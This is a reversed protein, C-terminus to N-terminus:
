KKITFKSLISTSVESIKDHSVLVSLTDAPLIITAGSPAIVKNKRNLMTIITNEPLSLDSVKSQGQYIDNDIFLEILEYNTEHFTVLEMKQKVKERQKESFKLIDALKGITTGQFLVSLTVTFFVINFIQHQSDIGAAVPYTALVIPVAGRIGSWSLFVKEKVSLKTFLTCLFVTVPRSFFSIILFISVGFVWVTSFEGPFVLLGLLVFLAINAIFSLTETFSSIGNKFPLKKNGMVHGAFFASLMGSAHLLDAFSASLLIVGILFIYYYGVDINRIKDFLFAGFLGILIGIVGGALLQWVFSAVTLFPSLESGIILSIIFMTTIIAAPDNAASEIEVISSIRKNSITRSRLISFVAAADTSSIITSLLLSRMFSWGTLLCFPIATLFATLLIGGTALLVTPNIVPKLNESKTGFGGAFLIFILAINALKQALQANDFYIINTVDSGFFIGIALAIVIIPLNFRRSLTAIFVISILILSVILLLIIEM